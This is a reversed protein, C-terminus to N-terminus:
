MRNCKFHKKNSTCYLILLLQYTVLTNWELAQSSQCSNQSIYVCIHRPVRCSFNSYAVSVKPYILLSLSCPRLKGLCKVGVESTANCVSTLGPQTHICDLLSRESGSCSVVRMLQPRFGIGFYSNTFATAGTYM